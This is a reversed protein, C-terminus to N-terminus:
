LWMICQIHTLSTFLKPYIDEQTSDTHRKVRLPRAEVVSFQACVCCASSLKHYLLLMSWCLHM